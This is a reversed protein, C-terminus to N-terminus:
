LRAPKFLESYLKHLPPPLPLGTSPTYYRNISGGKQRITGKFELPKQYKSKVPINSQKLEM